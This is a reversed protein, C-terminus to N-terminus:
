PPETDGQDTDDNACHRRTGDTDHDGSDRIRHQGPQHHRGQHNTTRRNQTGSLESHIPCEPWLRCANARSVARELRAVANYLKGNEKRLEQLEVCVDSYMAKYVDHIEKATRASRIKGSLLWAVAGALGYPFAWQLYQLITELM